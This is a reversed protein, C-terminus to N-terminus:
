VWDHAVPTDNRLFGEESTQPTSDLTLLAEDVVGLVQDTLIVLEEQDAKVMKELTLKDTAIKLAVLVAVQSLSLHRNNKLLDRSEKQVYEVVDRPSVKPRQVQSPDLNKKELSSSKLRLGLVEFVETEHDKEAKFEVKESVNEM